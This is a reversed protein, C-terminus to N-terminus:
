KTLIWAFASVIVAIMLIVKWEQNSTSTSDFIFGHGTKRIRRLIFSIYAATPLMAMAFLIKWSSISELNWKLPLAILLFVFLLSLCYCLVSVVKGTRPWPIFLEKMGISTREKTLYHLLTSHGVIFFLIALGLLLSFAM